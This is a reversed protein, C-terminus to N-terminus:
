GGHLIRGNELRDQRRKHQQKTLAGHRLETEESLRKTHYMLLAKTFVLEDVGLM